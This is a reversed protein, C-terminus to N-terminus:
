PFLHGRHRILYPIRLFVSLARVEDGLHPPGHYLQKLRLGSFPYEVEAAARSHERLLEGRRAAGEKKILRYPM